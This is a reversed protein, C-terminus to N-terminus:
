EVGTSGFGDRNKNNLTECVEFILRPQHEIIRFQCVRDNKKIYAERTAYVAWGWIDNDGCYTEDIVGISNTQIVGWRKFSSSRPALIAEYGQPLEIAVGLSIIYHQGEQLEIDQAARLDIWDGKSTVELPILGEVAYRVKLTQHKNLTPQHRNLACM